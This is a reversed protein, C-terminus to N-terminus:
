KNKKYVSISCENKSVYPLFLLMFINKEIRGTDM